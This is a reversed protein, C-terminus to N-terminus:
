LEEMKERAESKFRNFETETVFGQLSNQIKSLRDNLQDKFNITIDDRVMDMSLRENKKPSKKETPQAESNKDEKKERRDANASESTSANLM